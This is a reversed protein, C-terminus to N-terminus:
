VESKYKEVDGRNAGERWREGAACSCQLFYYPALENAM